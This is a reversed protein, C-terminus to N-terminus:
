KLNLLEEKTHEKSIKITQGILRIQKLQKGWPKWFFYKTKLSNDRTLVEFAYELHAQCFIKYKKGIWINELLAKLTPCFIREIKGRPHKSYDTIVIQDGQSLYFLMEDPVSWLLGRYNKQEVWTSRLYVLHSGEIGSSLGQTLNLYTIMKKALAAM